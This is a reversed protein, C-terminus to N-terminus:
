DSEERHHWSLVATSSMKNLENPTVEKIEGKTM